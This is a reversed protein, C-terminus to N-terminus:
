ARCPYKWLRQGTDSAIDRAVDMFSKAKGTGLNYVGSATLDFFHKHVKVVQEVPVFDRHIEDSGEYSRSRGLRRLRYGFAVTRRLSTKTTSMRATSTSTASSRCLCPGHRPCPHRARCLAKSQAYLTQPDPRDMERFTTNEPGYVGASSAFQFPIKRAACEYLLDISSDINQERLKKDDTCATSSIAGLHIVRDIGDLSVTGTVGSTDWRV